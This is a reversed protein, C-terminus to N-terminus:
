HGVTFTFTGQTKHTDVATAHWVVTYAGPQLPKVGVILRKNDDPATHVTGSDVRAGASDQVEIKSFMPEVGETYNIAVESPATPVMSNVPPTASILHAHAFAAASLTLGAAFVAAPVIVRTM